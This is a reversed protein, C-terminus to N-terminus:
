DIRILCAFSSFEATKLEFGFAEIVQKLTSNSPSAESFKPATWVSRSSPNNGGLNFRNSNERIVPM